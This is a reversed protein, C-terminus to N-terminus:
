KCAFQAMISLCGTAAELVDPAKLNAAIAECALLHGKETAIMYTAGNAVKNMMVWGRSPKCFLSLVILANAAVSPADIHERLARLVPM